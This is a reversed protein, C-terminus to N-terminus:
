HLILDKNMEMQEMIERVDEFEEEDMNDMIDKAKLLKNMQEVTHLYYECFEENADVVALVDHHRITTENVKIIQVPLWHQMILGAQRGTEKIMVSMPEVVKYGDEIDFLQCVIDEGNTFRVIKINDM